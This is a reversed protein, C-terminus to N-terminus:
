KVEDEMREYKPLGRIYNEVAIQEKRRIVEDSIPNIRNYVYIFNEIFLTREASMELMPFMFALDWTVTFWNGTKDKFDEERINHWLKSKFARLHSTVWKHERYSNNKIVEDPLQECLGGAGTPYMIYNGYTM